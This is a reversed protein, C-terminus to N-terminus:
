SGLLVVECMCCTDAICMCKHLIKGNVADPVFIFASHRECFRHISLPDHSSKSGRRKQSQRCELHIVSQLNQPLMAPMLHNQFSEESVFGTNIAFGDEGTGPIGECADWNWGARQGPITHVLGDKRWGARQVREAAAHPTTCRYTACCKRAYYQSCGHQAVATALRDEELPFCIEFVRVVARAVFTREPWGVLSKELINKGTGRLRIYFFVLSSKRCVLCALFSTSGHYLSQGLAAMWKKPCSGRFIIALAHLLLAYDQVAELM